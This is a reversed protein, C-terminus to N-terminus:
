QGAHHAADPAAVIVALPDQVLFRQGVDQLARAVFNLPDVVLGAAFADTVADGATRGVGSKIRREAGVAAAIVSNEDLLELVLDVTNGLLVGFFGDHEKQVHHALMSRGIAFAGGGRELDVTGFAKIGVERAARAFFDDVGVVVAHM